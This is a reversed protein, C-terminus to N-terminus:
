LGGIRRHRLGLIGLLGSSLLVLTGPEPVVTSVSAVHGNVISISYGDVDYRNDILYLNGFDGLRPVFDVQVPVFQGSQYGLTPTFPSSYDTVSFQNTALSYLPAPGSDYLLFADLFSNGPFLHFNPDWGELSREQRPLGSRAPDYTRTFDPTVATVSSTLWPSSGDDSHRTYHPPESSDSGMLAPDWSFTGSFSGTSGFFYYPCAGTYECRFSLYDYIDGKVRVTIPNAQTVSAFAALCSVGAVLSSLLRKAQRNLM